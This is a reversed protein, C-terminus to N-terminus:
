KAKESTRLNTALAAISSLKGISQGTGRLETILENTVLNNLIAAHFM